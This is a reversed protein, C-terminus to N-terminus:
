ILLGALEVVSHAVHTPRAGAIETVDGAGYTVGISSISNATAGIIDHERDGVMVFDDKPKEPHLDLALRILSAKDANSLDLESGIVGDFFRDLGFHAVIPVAFHKPKSTVVYLIRGSAQLQELLEPVGSFLLNEYM